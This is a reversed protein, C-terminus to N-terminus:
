QLVLHTAVLRVVRPTCAHSLVQPVSITVAKTLNYFHKYKYVATVLTMPVLIVTMALTIDFLLWQLLPTFMEMWVPYVVGGLNVHLVRYYGKYMYWTLMSTPINETRWHQELPLHIVSDVGPVSCKTQPEM